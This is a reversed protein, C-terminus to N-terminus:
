GKVAGLLFTTISTASFVLILGIIIPLMKKKIENKVEADAAVIYQFGTFAIVLISMLASAVRVFGLLKRIIGQVGETGVSDIDSDNPEAKDILDGYGQVQATGSKKAKNSTSTNTKALVVSFTDPTIFVISICLVLIFSIKFFYKM